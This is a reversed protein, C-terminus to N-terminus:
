FFIKSKIKANRKRALLVNHLDSCLLLSLRIHLLHLTQIYVCIYVNYMCIYIYEYLNSSTGYLTELTSLPESSIQCMIYFVRYSGESSIYLYSAPARPSGSHFCASGTCGATWGKDSPSERLSVPVLIEGLLIRLFAEGKLTLFGTNM